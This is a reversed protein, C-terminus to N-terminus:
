EKMQLQYMASWIKMYAEHRSYDKVSGKFNPYDIDMIRESIAKAVEERKIEARYKYDTGGGVQVKASPFVAEIDGSSRGRVVLCGKNKAKDVVSLFSDNLAIWM